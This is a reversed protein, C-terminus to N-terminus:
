AAVMPRVRLCAGAGRRLREQVLRLAGLVVEHLLVLQAHVAVGRLGLEVDVEVLQLHDGLKQLVRTGLRRLSVEARVRLLGRLWVVVLLQDLLQEELLLVLLLVLVLLATWRVWRALEGLPLRQM